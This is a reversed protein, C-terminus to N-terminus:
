TGCSASTSTAAARAGPDLGPLHGLHGADAAPRRGRASRPDRARGTQLHAELVSSTAEKAQLILADNEDRGQLVIVFCRTGVSGVGVVKLAFDLFRYRELFDRRSEPLSARYADFVERTGGQVDLTVPDPGASRGPHGSARRRDDTLSEFARMGDRRRAKAFLGELAGRSPRGAKGVFLGAAEAAQVIDDATIASYWSMSSAWRPM